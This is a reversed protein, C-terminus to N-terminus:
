IFMTANAIKREFNPFRTVSAVKASTGIAETIHVGHRRLVAFKARAHKTFVITM